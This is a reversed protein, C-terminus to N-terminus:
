VGAAPWREIRYCRKCLQRHEDASYVVSFLNGCRTCAGRFVRPLPRGHADFRTGYVARHAMFRRMQWWTIKVGTVFAILLLFGCTCAVLIGGLLLINQAFMEIQSLKRNGALPLAIAPFM